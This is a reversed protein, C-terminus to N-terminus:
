LANALAILVKLISAMDLSNFIALYAIFISGFVAFYAYIILNNKCSRVLKDKFTFEGADEYEQCIPLILRFVFLYCIIVLLTPFEGLLDV